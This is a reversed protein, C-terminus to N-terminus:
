AAEKIHSRLRDLIADGAHRVATPIRDDQWRTGSLGKANFHWENLGRTLIVTVRCEAQAGREDGPEIWQVDIYFVIDAHDRHAHRLGAASLGDGVQNELQAAYIRDEPAAQAYVYVTDAPSLSFGEPHVDESWRPTGACGFFLPILLLLLRTKM